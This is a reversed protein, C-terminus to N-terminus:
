IWVNEFMEYGFKTKISFTITPSIEFAESKSFGFNLIKLPIINM